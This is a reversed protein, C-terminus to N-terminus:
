PSSGVFIFVLLCHPVSQSVGCNNLDTLYSVACPTHFIGSRSRSIRASKVACRPTPVDTLSAELKLDVSERGQSWSRWFLCTTSLLITLASPISDVFFRLKLLMYPSLHCGLGYFASKIANVARLCCARHGAKWCSNSIPRAVKDTKSGNGRSRDKRSRKLLGAGLPSFRLADDACHRCPAGM